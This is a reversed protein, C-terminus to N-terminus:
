FPVDEQIARNRVADAQEDTLERFQVPWGQEDMWAKVRARGQEDIQKIADFAAQQSTTLPPPEQQQAPADDTPSPVQAQQQPSPPQEDSALDGKAWLELAVGFRMAANRIADGIAEKIGDAGKSAPLEGFGPRTMGCVTLRIWLGIPEGKTNRVLAPQGQEDVSFPEWTWCADIDLLRATVQAHGVYDLHISAPEHWGNCVGCRAKPKSKDVGRPLKDTADPGFPERLKALGAEDIGTDTTM